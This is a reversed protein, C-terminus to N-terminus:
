RRRAWRSTSTPPTTSSWPPLLQDISLLPKSMTRRGKPTLGAELSSYSRKPPALWRTPTASPRHPAGRRLSRRVARRRRADLEAFAEEIASPASYPREATMAEFADAVLIIRSELPIETAASARPTAAETSTSTTSSCGDAEEELGAAAVISHGVHVHGSM